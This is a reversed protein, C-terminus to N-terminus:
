IKANIKNKTNFLLTEILLKLSPFAFALILFVYNANLGLNGIATIIKETANMSITIYMCCFELLFVVIIVTVGQWTDLKRANLISLAAVCFVTAPGYSLIYDSTVLYFIQGVSAIAAICFVIISIIMSVDRNQIKDDCIVKYEDRESLLQDCMVREKDCIVVLKECKSLLEDRQLM